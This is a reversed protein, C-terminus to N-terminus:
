AELLPQWVATLEDKAVGAQAWTLLSEVLFQSLFRANARPALATELPAALQKRLRAHWARPLVSFAAIAAPDMFLARHRAAFSVLGDYEASLIEMPMGSGFAKHMDATAAQWDELMFTAVLADKSSFYNYVTGVGVGCASAVGRITLAGYGCENIQRRAEDLLKERCNEIIKPM